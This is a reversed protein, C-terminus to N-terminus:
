QDAGFRERALQGFRAFQADNLSKIEAILSPYARALDCVDSPDTKSQHSAFFNKFASIKKRQLNIVEEDVMMEQLAIMADPKGCRGSNICQLARDRIQTYTASGAYGALVAHSCTWLLINLAFYGIHKISAHMTLIFNPSVTQLGIGILVSKRLKEHFRRNLSYTKATHKLIGNRVRADM